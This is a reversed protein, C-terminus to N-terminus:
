LSRFTAKGAPDHNLPGTALFLPTDHGNGDITNHCAPGPKALARDPINIIRAEPPDIDAGPQHMAM